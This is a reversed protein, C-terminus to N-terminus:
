EGSLEDTPKDRVEWLGIDKLTKRSIERAESISMGRATLYMLLHEYPSSMGVPRAEQPISSILKRVKKAEKVIDLGNIRATGSTPLLQTSLIRVLTTKGAGNRGLVSLVKVNSKFNLNDLAKTGDGYIKTLDITELM